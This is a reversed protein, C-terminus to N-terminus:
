FFKIVRKPTKVKYILMFIMEKKIMHHSTLRSAEPNIGIQNSVTCTRSFTTEKEHTRAKNRLISFYVHILEKQCWM